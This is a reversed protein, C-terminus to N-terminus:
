KLNQTIADATSSMDKMVSSLTQMFQSLRDMAMQLRQSTQENQDDESAIANLADLAAQLNQLRLSPGSQASGAIAASMIQMEQRLAQKANTQAQVENMIEQLDNQASAASSMMVVMAAAAVVTAEENQLDAASPAAVVSQPALGGIDREGALTVAVQLLGRQADSLAHAQASPLPPSSTGILASQIALATKAIAAILARNKAIRAAQVNGLDRLAIQYSQAAVFLTSVEPSKLQQLLIRLASIQQSNGATSPSAQANQGADQSNDCSLSVVSGFGAEPAVHANRSAGGPCRWEAVFDKQCGRKPDGLIKYDVTFDCRDRGNCADALAKTVNGSAAGCNGGYTATTVNLSNAAGTSAPPFHAISPSSTVQATEIPPPPNGRAVSGPLGRPLGHFGVTPIVGSTPRVPSPAVPVVTAVTRHGFMPHFAPMAHPAAERATAAAIGVAFVAAATAM